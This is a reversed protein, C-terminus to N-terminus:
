EEIEELTNTTPNYRYPLGNPAYYPIIVDGGYVDYNKYVILTANDYFFDDSIATFTGFRNSSLEESNTNIAIGEETSCGTLSCSLLLAALLIFIKRKM